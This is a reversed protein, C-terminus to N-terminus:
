VYVQEREIRRRLQDLTTSDAGSHQMSRLLKRYDRAVVKSTLREHVGECDILWMRWGDAHRSEPYFHRSSTGRWGLGNAHITKVTSVVTELLTERAAASLQDWKGFQIMEEISHAPPIERVIVASRVHLRGQEFLAWRQPVNLGASQFRILGNWERRALSQYAQGTKLDTMRPWIRRRGWQMKVFIRVPDDSGATLCTSWVSRGEHRLGASKGRAFLSDLDDLDNAQLLERTQDDAFM